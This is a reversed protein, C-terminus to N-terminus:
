APNLPRHAVHSRPPLCHTSSSLLRLALGRNHWEPLEAARRAGYIHVLRRRYMPLRDIRAMIAVAIAQRQEFPIFIRSRPRYFGRAMQASHWEALDHRLVKM